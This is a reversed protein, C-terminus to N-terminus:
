TEDIIDAQFGKKRLEKVLRKANEIKSFKGARVRYITKGGRRTKSIIADFGKRKLSRRVRKANLYKGFAGVQVIYYTTPASRAPSVAKRPTVRTGEKAIVAVDSEGKMKRIAIGRLEKVRRRARSGRYDRLFRDCERKARNYDGKLIHAEIREIGRTEPASYAHAAEPGGYRFTLLFCVLAIRLMIRNKM